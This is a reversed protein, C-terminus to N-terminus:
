NEQDCSEAESCYDMDSEELDVNEQAFFQSRPKKIKKKFGPPLNNHSSSKNGNQKSSNQKNSSSDGNITANMVIESGFSTNYSSDSIHMMKAAKVSEVKQRQKLSIRLLRQLKKNEKALSKLTPLPKRVSQQRKSPVREDQQQQDGGLLYDETYVKHSRLSLSEKSCVKHLPQLDALLPNQLNFLNFSMRRDKVSQPMLSLPEKYTETNKSMMEQFFM